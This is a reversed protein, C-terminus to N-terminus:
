THVPKTRMGIELPDASDRAGDVTCLNCGQQRADAGHVVQVVRVRRACSDNADCRMAGFCVDRCLVNGSGSLESHVRNTEQHHRM